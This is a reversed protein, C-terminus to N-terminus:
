MLAKPTALFGLTLGPGIRKSLSDVLVVRDSAQAVLPEDDTSLFGNVTDEIAVLDQQNLVDLLESRREPPMTIGLPNHMTPQLYVVRVDTIADPVLGHQDMELPVLTIHLRNAISKVVPYTTSEIGLREGPPVLASMVAALAQRGSGAILIGDPDPRWGTRTLLHAAAERAPPTGAPGAPQLATMLADPRLLAQLGPALMEGQEPLVPFNLELDVRGSPANWASGGGVGGPSAVDRPATAAATMAAATIAGTRVFTGRGVEGVVLRRRVLEGYVRAATSAAIGHQRAFERQPPLRDGARLRGAAIDGAVRDAVTRYDM